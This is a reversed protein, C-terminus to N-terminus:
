ENMKGTLTFLSQRLMQDCNNQNNWRDDFWFGTTEDWNATNPAYVWAVRGPFIGKAEGQPVNPPMMFAPTARTAGVMNAYLDKVNNSIFVIGFFLGTLVFCTALGIKGQKLLRNSKSFAKFGGWLSILYIVFSSMFPAAAQMCPYSARSPKPIVRILFWITASLGMGIFILGSILKGSSTERYKRELLNYIRKM